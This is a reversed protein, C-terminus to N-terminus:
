GKRFEVVQRLHYGDHGLVLTALDGITLPGIDERICTRGWEEPGLSALLATLKERGARFRDLQEAFDSHAYDHDIAWQGEDYGPLVPNDEEVMRSIREEWVGEWDAMHAIAERLTFREPDVQRDMEETTIGACLQELVIPTAALGGQLYRLVATAIM